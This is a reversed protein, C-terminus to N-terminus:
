VFKRRLGTNVMWAMIRRCEEIMARARASEGKRAVVKATGNPSVRGSRSWSRSTRLGLGKIGGNGRLCPEVVELQVGWFGIALLTQLEPEGYQQLPESCDVTQPGALVVFHSDVVIQQMLVLPTLQTGTPKKSLATKQLYCCASLNPFCICIHAPSTSKVPGTVM